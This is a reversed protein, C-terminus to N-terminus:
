SGTAPFYDLMKPYVERALEFAREDAKPVGDRDVPVVIRVLAMDTRNAKVADVLRRFRLEQEKTQVSTHTQFWYLVVASADGRAIRYYNVPLAAGQRLPVQAVRNDLPNWGSGPLCVKPDHANKARLQTKYYAVFVGARIGSGKEQYERSLTDDPGLMDLVDTEIPTDQTAQWRELAGPFISLPPPSPLYPDRQFFNSIGAQLALILIAALGIGTLTKM